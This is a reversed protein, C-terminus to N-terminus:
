TKCFSKKGLELVNKLSDKIIKRNLIRKKRRSSAIRANRGTFGEERRGQESDEQHEQYQRPTERSTIKCSEKYVTATNKILRLSPITRYNGKEATTTCAHGKECLIRRHLLGPKIDVLSGKPRSQPRRTGLDLLIYGFSERQKRRDSEAMIIEIIM